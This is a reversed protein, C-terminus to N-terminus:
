IIFSKVIIWGLIVFVFNSFIMSLISIQVPIGTFSFLLNIFIFNTQLILIALSNILQRVVGILDWSWDISFSYDSMESTIIPANLFQWVNGMEVILGKVGNIVSKFINQYGGPDQSAEINESEFRVAELYLDYYTQIQENTLGFQGLDVDSYPGSTSVQYPTVTDGKELQIKFTFDNFTTQGTGLYIRPSAANYASLYNERLGKLPYYTGVKLSMSAPNNTYNPFLAIYDTGVDVTGSVYEYTFSVVTDNPLVNSFLNLNVQTSTNTGNLRVHGTLVNFDKIIGGETNYRYWGGGLDPKGTLDPMAQNRNSFVERLTYGNLRSVPQDLQYVAISYTTPIFLLLLALFVLYLKKM